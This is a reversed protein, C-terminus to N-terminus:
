KKTQKNITNLITELVGETNSFIENNWFRLVTFGQAKLWTDRIADRPSENHQGGDAEIIIRTSFSIFDVIYNGLPQQRKFKAGTLRHARLARWLHNEADTQNSRLQKAFDRQNITNGREGM